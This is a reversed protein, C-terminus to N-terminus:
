QGVLTGLWQRLKWLGLCNSCDDRKDRVFPIFQKGLSYM